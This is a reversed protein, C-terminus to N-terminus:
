TLINSYALTFHVSLILKQRWLREVVFDAFVANTIAAFVAVVDLLKQFKGTFSGLHKM